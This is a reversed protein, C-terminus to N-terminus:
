HSFLLLFSSFLFFFLFFSLSLLFFLHFPVPGAPSSFGSRARATLLWIVGFRSSSQYAGAETGVLVQNGIALHKTRFTRRDCGLVQLVCPLRPPYCVARGARAGRLSRADSYLAEAAGEGPCWRLMLSAIFHSRM